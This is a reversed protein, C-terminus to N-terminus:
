RVVIIGSIEIDPVVPRDDFRMRQDKGVVDRFVGVQIEQGKGSALTERM